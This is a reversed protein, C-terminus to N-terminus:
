EENDGDDMDPVDEDSWVDEATVGLAEIFDDNIEEETQYTAAQAKELELREEMIKLKREELKHKNAWREPFKRELYWASATWNGKSSEQRINQVAFAEAFAEAEEVQLYLKVYPNNLAKKSPEMNNSNNMDEELIKEGTNMWRIFTTENIRVLKAATKRYNGQKIYDCIKNIKTQDIKPKKGAGKPNVIPDYEDKNVNNSAM